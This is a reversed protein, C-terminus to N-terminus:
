AFLRIIWKAVTSVKRAQVKHGAIGRVEWEQGCDECRWLGTNSLDPQCPHGKRGKQM